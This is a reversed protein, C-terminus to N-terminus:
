PLRAVYGDLSELDYYANRSCAAQYWTHVRGFVSVHNVDNAVVPPGQKVATAM